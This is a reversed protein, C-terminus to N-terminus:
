GHVGPLSVHLSWVWAVVWGIELYPGFAFPTTRTFRPGLKFLGRAFNFIWGLLGALLGAIVCYSGLSWSGTLAAPVGATVVLIMTDGFGMGNFGRVLKYLYNLGEFLVATALVVFLGALLRRPDDEALAAVAALGWGCLAAQWFVRGDLYMTALDVLAIVAGSFAVVWLALLAILSAGVGLGLAGILFPAVGLTLALAGGTAVIARETPALYDRRLPADFDGTTTVTASGGLSGRDAAAAVVKEGCKILGRKDLTEAAGRELLDATEPFLVNMRAVLAESSCRTKIKENRKKLAKNMARRTMLKDKELRYADRTSWRLAQRSIKEGFKEKLSIRVERKTKANRSANIRADGLEDELATWIAAHEPHYFDKAQMVDVILYNLPNSLIAGLVSKEAAVEAGAPRKMVRRASYKTIFPALAAGAGVGVVSSVIEFSSMGSVTRRVATNAISRLDPRNRRFGGYRVHASFIGVPVTRDM